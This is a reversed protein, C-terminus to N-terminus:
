HVCFIISKTKLFTFNSLLVKLFTSSIAENSTSDYYLATHADQLSKKWSAPYSHAENAVTDSAVVTEMRRQQKALMSYAKSRRSYFESVLKKINRDISIGDTCLRIADDFKRANMATDVAARIRQTESVTVRLARLKQIIDSNDPDRQLAVMLHKEALDTCGTAQLAAARVMYADSLINTNCGSGLTILKQSQRSAEEYDELRLCAQALGLSVIPADSLGASISNEFLRRSRSFEGRKLSELGEQFMEVARRLKDILNGFLNSAGEEPRNELLLAEQLVELAKEHEGMSALAASHRMRLKDLQGPIKELRIGDVCDSIARKYEKLMMWAAARNGYYIGEDKRLSIAQSYYRVAEQYDENKYYDNGRQKFQDARTISDLANSATTAQRPVANDRGNKGALACKLIEQLQEDVSEFGDIDSLVSEAMDVTSIADDWRKLQLESRGMHLYGKPFYQNIHVCKEADRLAEKWKGKSQYASSRNSYLLHNDPTCSIAVGYLRIASDIDKKRFYGNGAEKAASSIQERLETVDRQTQHETPASDLTRCADEILGTALQCKTEIIYSKLFNVDLIRAKKADDIADTYNGVRSYALARNTYFLPNNPNISIAETYVTAADLFKGTKFLDNGDNKKQEGVEKILEDCKLDTICISNFLEELEDIIEKRKDREESLSLSLCDLEYQIDELEGYHSAAANKAEYLVSLPPLPGEKISGVGM